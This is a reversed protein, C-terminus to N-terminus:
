EKPEDKKPTFHLLKFKDRELKKLFNHREKESEVIMELTKVLNSHNKLNLHRGRVDGMTASYTGNPNIRLEILIPMDDLSAVTTSMKAPVAEIKNVKKHRIKLYIYRLFYSVFLFVFATM